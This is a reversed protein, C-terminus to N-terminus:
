IYGMPCIQLWWYWGMWFPWILETVHPWFFICFFFFFIYFMFSFIFFFCVFYFVVWTLFGVFFIYFLICFMIFFFFFFFEFIVFGYLILVGFVVCFVYLFVLFCGVFRFRSVFVVLLCQISPGGMVLVAGSVFLTPFNLLMDLWRYVSRPFREFPPVRM